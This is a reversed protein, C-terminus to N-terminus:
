RRGGGVCLLLWAVAALCLGGLLIFGVILNLVDVIANV